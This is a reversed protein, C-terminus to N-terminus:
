IVQSCPLLKDLLVGGNSTRIAMHPTKKLLRHVLIGGNRGGKNTRKPLIDKPQDKPIGLLSKTQRAIHRNTSPPRKDPTPVVSTLVAGGGQNNDGVTWPPEEM